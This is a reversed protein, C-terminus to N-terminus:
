GGAPVTPSGPVDAQDPSGDANMADLLPQVLPGAVRMVRNYDQFKLRGLVAPDKAPIPVQGPPYDTDKPTYPIHWTAILMCMAGHVFDMTMALGRQSQENMDAANARVAGVVQRYDDGTLYEPDHFTIWGGSPLNVKEGPAPASPPTIPTTM